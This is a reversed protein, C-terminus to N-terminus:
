RFNLVKPKLRISDDADRSSYFDLMQEKIYEAKELYDKGKKGEGNASLWEAAALYALVHHYAANFVPTSTAGTGEVLLTVLSTYHVIIGSAVNVEPIAGVQLKGSRIWVLPSNSSGARSNYSDVNFLGTPVTAMKIIEAKRYANEDASYRLEIADVSMLDTALSYSATGAVLNIAGSGTGDTTNEKWQNMMNTLLYGQIEKYKINIMDTIQIDTFSTVDDLTNTLFRTLGRLTSLAVASAAGIASM